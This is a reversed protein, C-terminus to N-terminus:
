PSTLRLPPPEEDFMPAPSAKGGAITIDPVVKGGGDQRSCHERRRRRIYEYVLRHISLSSNRDQFFGRFQGRHHGTQQPPAAESRYRNGAGNLGPLHDVVRRGMGNEQQDRRRHRGAKSRREQIQHFAIWARLYRKRAGGRVGARKEWPLLAHYPVAQLLRLIKRKRLEGEAQVFEEFPASDL